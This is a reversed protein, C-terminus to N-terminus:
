KASAERHPGVHVHTSADGVAGGDDTVRVTVIRHETEPVQVNLEFPPESRSGVPMYKSEFQDSDALFFEVNRIKGDADSANPACLPDPLSSFLIQVTCLFSIPCLKPLLLVMYAYCM